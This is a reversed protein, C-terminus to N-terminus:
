AAGTKAYRDQERLGERHALDVKGDHLIGMDAGDQYGQPLDQGPCNWGGGAVRGVAREGLRPDSLRGTNKANSYTM